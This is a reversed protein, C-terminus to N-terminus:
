QAIISPNEPIRETRVVVEMEKRRNSYWLVDEHLITAMYITPTQNTVERSFRGDSDYTRWRMLAFKEAVRRSLTWSNYKWDGENGGQYVIISGGNINRKPIKNGASRLKDRNAHAIAEEWEDPAFQGLEGRTWTEILVKEYDPREVFRNLNALFYPIADQSNRYSLSKAPDDKINDLRELLQYRDAESLVLTAGRRDTEATEPSCLFDVLRGEALARAVVPSVTGQSILEDIEEQIM